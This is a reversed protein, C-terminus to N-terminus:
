KSTGSGSSCSKQLASEFPQAAPLESSQSFLGLLFKLTIPNIAFPQVGRKVIETLFAEADTVEAEAAALVDCQRLPAIEVVGVGQHGWIEVLTQELSAPWEATRCAIRLRLRGSHVAIRRLQSSLINALNKVELRGEDLSDFFLNLISECDIWARVADNKFADAVLVGDTQYEKLDIRVTVECTKGGAGIRRVESEFETSKGMGPEGLMVLCPLDAFTELSALNPNLGKGAESEPDCLYGNDALRYSADRPCWFRKWPYIKM